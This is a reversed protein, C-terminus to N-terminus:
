YSTNTPTPFLNYDCCVRSLRSCTSRENQHFKVCVFLLFFFFFFFLLYLHLLFLLYIFTYTTPNKNQKKLPTKQTHTHTNKAQIEAATFVPEFQFTQLIDSVFTIENSFEDYDSDSSFDTDSNKRKRRKKLICINIYSTPIPM